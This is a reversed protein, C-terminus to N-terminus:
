VKKNKTNVVVITEALLKSKSFDSGSSAIDQALLHADSTAYIDRLSPIVPIQPASDSYVVKGLLRSSMLQEAM